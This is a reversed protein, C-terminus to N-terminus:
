RARRFRLFHYFKGKISREVLQHKELELGHSAAMSSIEDKDFVQSFRSKSDFKRKQTDIGAKAFVCLFYQGVFFTFHKMVAAALVSVPITNTTYVYSHRSLSLRVQLLKDFYASSASLVCRDAPFVLGNVCVRVDCFLEKMKQGLLNNMTSDCHQADTFNM